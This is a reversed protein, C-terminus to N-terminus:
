DPPLPGPLTRIWKRALALREPPTPHSFLALYAVRPPDLDALNNRALSVHTRVFADPDSTLDLSWRDATREWRRSLATGVPLVALELATLLLAAVPYDAAKPTGITAWLLLVAAVAGAMALVTGKLIHRERRHGLEHAVVLKLEADDANQLLTDWVVLRRTPGLGSVYANSKVTRRSADAILVARLPVGADDALKRLARALEQDPLPHFRNFLPELLLPALLTLIVVALAAGVAAVAPWWRPLWRALAILATWAGAALAVTIAGSKARDALWAGPTQTSFGWRRERLQGRWFDLPLCVLTAAVVVLAAWAAADGAWGLGSTAHGALLAYVAVVLVIRALMALYLPDHYRRAREREQPIFPDAELQHV